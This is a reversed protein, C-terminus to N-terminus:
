HKMDREKKVNRVTINFIGRRCALGASCVMVILIMELLYQCVGKLQLQEHGEPATHFCAIIEPM